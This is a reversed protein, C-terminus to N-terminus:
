SMVNVTVSEYFSSTDEHYTLHLFIATALVLYPKQAFGTTTEAGYTHFWKMLNADKVYCFHASYADFLEGQFAHASSFSVCDPWLM